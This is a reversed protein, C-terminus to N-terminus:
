SAHVRPGTSTPHPHVFPLAPHHILSCRVIASDDQANPLKCWGGKQENMLEVFSMSRRSQHSASGFIPAAIKSLRAGVKEFHATASAPILDALDVEQGPEANGDALSELRKAFDTKIQELPITSIIDAIETSGTLADAIKGFVGNKDTAQSLSLALSLSLTHPPPPLLFSIFQPSILYSPVFCSSLLPSVHFLLLLGVQKALKKLMSVQSSVKGMVEKLKGAGALESAFKKAGKLAQAAEKTLDDPVLQSLSGVTMAQPPEPGESASRMKAAEDLGPMSALNPM